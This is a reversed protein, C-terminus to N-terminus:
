GAASSIIGFLVMCGVLVYEMISLKESIKWFMIAPFTFSIHVAFFTCAIRLVLSTAGIGGEEAFAALLSAITALLICLFATISVHRQFTIERGNKDSNQGNLLQNILQNVGLRTPFLCIGFGFSINLAIFFSAIAGTITLVGNNKYM